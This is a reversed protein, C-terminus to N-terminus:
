LPQLCLSKQDREIMEAFSPEVGGAPVPNFASMLGSSWMAEVIGPALTRLRESEAADARVRERMDRALEVVQARAM